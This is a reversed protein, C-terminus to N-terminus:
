ESKCLEVIPRGNKHSESIEIEGSEGNLRFEADWDKKSLMEIVERVKAM